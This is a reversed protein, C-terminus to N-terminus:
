VRRTLPTRATLWAAVSEHRTVHGRADLELMTVGDPQACAVLSAGHATAVVQGRALLAATAAPDECGRPDTPRGDFPAGRLIGDLFDDSEFDVDRDLLTRGLLGLAAVAYGVEPDTPAAADRATGPSALQLAEDLEKANLKLKKGLGRLATQV